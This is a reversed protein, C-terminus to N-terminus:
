NFNDWDPLIDQIQKSDSDSELCYASASTSPTASTTSPIQKCSKRKQQNPRHQKDKWWLDIASNPSFDAPPTEDIAILLLDDLPSSYSCCASNGAKTLEKKLLSMAHIYQDTHSHDRINSTRM